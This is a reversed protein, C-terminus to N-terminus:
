APEFAAREPSRAAPHILDAGIDAIRAPPAPLYRRLLERTRAEELLGPGSSLRSEELGESYHAAAWAPAPDTEM